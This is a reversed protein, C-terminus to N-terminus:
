QWDKALKYSWEFDVDVTGEDGIVRSRVSYTGSRAQLGTPAEEAPLEKKCPSGDPSPGYSGLVAELKDVTIGARKVVHIYRMGSTDGHNVRFELGLSYEVGEKIVVPGAALRGDAPDLRRRERGESSVTLALLVFEPEESM